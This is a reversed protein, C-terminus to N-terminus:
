LNPRRITISAYDAHATVAVTNEGEAPASAAELENRVRGHRSAIDLWAATGEPVGVEISGYGGDIRVEGSDVRDIRVEGHACKIEATGALQEVTVDGTVSKVSLSGDVQGFATSGTSNKVRGEGDLTGVRIAGAGNSARLAGTVRGAQISGAGSHLTTAGAQQVRLEGAGTRLACSGLVGETVADGAGLKADLSSGTPVTLQVTIRPSGSFWTYYRLTRAIRVGLVGDAYEVDVEGAARVDDKKAPNQPAISVSTTDTDEARVALDVVVLLDLVVQVPDPTDFDYAM